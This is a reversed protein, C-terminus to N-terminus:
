YMSNKKLKIKINNLTKLCFINQLLDSVKRSDYIFSKFTLKVYFQVYYNM